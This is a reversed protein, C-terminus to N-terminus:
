PAQRSAREEGVSPTSAREPITRPGKKRGKVEERPVGVYGEQVPRPLTHAQLMQPAARQGWGVTDPDWSCARDAGQSLSWPGLRGPPCSPFPTSPPASTLPTPQTSSPGARYAPTSESLPAPSLGTAPPTQQPPSVPPRSTSPPWRQPGAMRRRSARDHHSGLGPVQTTVVKALM